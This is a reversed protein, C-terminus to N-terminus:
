KNDNPLRYYELITDQYLYFVNGSKIFYMNLFELSDGKPNFNNIEKKLFYYNKNNIWKSKKHENRRDWSDKSIGQLETNAIAAIKYADWYNAVLTGKEINKAKEYQRFVSEKNYKNKAIDLCSIITITGLVIFIIFRFISAFNNMAIGIYVFIYVYILTFYKPDFKSRYNWSSFFLLILALILTHAIARLNHNSKKSSIGIYVILIFLAYYFLCEYISHHNRLFIIDKFQVSFYQFQNFIQEKSTIFFRDYEPDSSMNHKLDLIWLLGLLIQLLAFSIIKYGLKTPKIHKIFLTGRIEKDYWTNLLIFIFIIKYQLLIESCM